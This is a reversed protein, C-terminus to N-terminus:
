AAAPAHAIRRGVDDHDAAAAGPKGRRDRRSAMAAAHQQELLIGLKAARGGPRDARDGRGARRMLAALADLVRRVRM